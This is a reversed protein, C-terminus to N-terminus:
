GAYCDIIEGSALVFLRQSDKNVSRYVHEICPIHRQGAATPGGPGFPGFRVASTVELTLYHATWTGHENGGHTEELDTVRALLVEPAALTQMLPGILLRAVWVLCALWCCAVSKQVLDTTSGFVAGVLISGVFIFCGNVFGWFLFDCFRKALTSLYLSFWPLTM